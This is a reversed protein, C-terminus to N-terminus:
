GLGLGIGLMGVRVKVMRIRVTAPCPKISQAPGSNIGPEYTSLISIIVHNQLPTKHM